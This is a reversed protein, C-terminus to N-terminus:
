IPPLVWIALAAIEGRIAIPLLAFRDRLQFGPIEDEMVVAHLADVYSDCVAVAFHDLAVAPVFAHDEGRPLGAIPILLSPEALQFLIVVLVILGYVHRSRQTQSRLPVLFRLQDAARALPM